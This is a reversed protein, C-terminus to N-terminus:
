IKKLRIYELYSFIVKMWDTINPLSLTNYTENLYMKLTMAENALKSVTNSNEATAGVFLAYDCRAGAKALQLIM